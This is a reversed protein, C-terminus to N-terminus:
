APLGLTALGDLMRDGMASRRGERLSPIVAVLRGITLKPCVRRLNAFSTEAARRDGLELCILALNQILWAAGPNAALARRHLLAAEDLRGARYHAM